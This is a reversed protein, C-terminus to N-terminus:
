DKVGLTKHFIIVDDGRIMFEYRMIWTTSLTITVPDTTFDQYV